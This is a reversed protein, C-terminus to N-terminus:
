RNVANAAPTRAELLMSALADAAQPLTSGKVNLATRLRSSIRLVNSLNDEMFALCAEAGSDQAISRLFADTQELVEREDPDDVMSWRSSMRIELARSDSDFLLLGVLTPEVRPYHLEILALEIFPV